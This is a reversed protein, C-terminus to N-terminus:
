TRLIDFGAVAIGGRLRCHQFLGRGRGPDVSVVPKSHDDSFERSSALPILSCGMKTACQDHEEPHLLGDRLRLRGPHAPHGGLPRVVEADALPVRVHSQLLPEDAHGGGVGRGQDRGRPGLLLHLNFVKPMNQACIGLKGGMGRVSPRRSLGRKRTPARRAATPGTGRPCTWM